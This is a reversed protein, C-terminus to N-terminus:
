KWARVFKSEFPMFQLAATKRLRNGLADVEEMKWGKAGEALELRTEKGAVERLHLTIGQNAPRASVLLVSSPDFPWFSRSSTGASAANVKPLVRSVFPVRAGWGFRTAFMNSTDWGSTLMYSWSMEGEQSSRFNTTWYNNLVWSFMQQTAPKADPTFRGTNIGGFQMLPIEDSVLVIQATASRLAAFNQVTNWDTATGPLQNGGPRVLGGQAEFLLSGQNLALPFAVYVAEPDNTATKRGKFIMDVRKMTKFLRIECTVGEEGAFGDSTGSLAISRWIPGDVGSKWHVNRLSSRTHEGLRNQELAHRDSLKEYIFQGLQWSREHDLLERGLELDVLSNIAGNKRDLTLRYYANQITDLPAFLPEATRTTNTTKIRYTKYGLPPVDDVWLVWYNGETRSQLLQAPVEKNHDDVIRFTVDKSLVQNDVYLQHLGSRSWNLTNFVVISPESSPHLFPQLQGMAAERLLRSQMVAQWAYSSKESWQIQSNEALPDSISEAAGFTHENYFHLNDAVSQMQQFLSRPLQAGFLQAMSLLGQNVILDAQTQRGAATERMACGYGDTWWDPWASRYVPLNRGHEREVWQLFEHVTASRLRPWEYKENWRRINDSSFTSPPSNDTLYGSYQISISNYPYGDSELQQLYVPLEREVFDFKDLHINYFNGTMYHDARYALVRKGSPSEWWFPTPVNFMKLSRTVNIGSTIYKVGLDHFYDVLCWAFGNVDDQMATLVPLGLDRFSKIQEISHVLANEDAVEAWNLLMGTVEIRGELVRKKLRAVQSAPRSKLYERVAWATECTWRFQAEEPYMDTQDCYDLAYDIYRLHEALIETQPRTYGIDTHAHQVLYLTWPRVPAIKASITKRTRGMELNVQLTKATTVPPLKVSHRTIGFPTTVKEVPMGPVAIVATTPEGLNVIELDLPQVSKGRERLMVPRSSATIGDALPTTFTMVWASSGAAEGTVRLEVPKGPQVVGPPLTLRMIGFRDLNRDVMMTKFSLREGNRGAEEWSERSSSVFTVVDIGNMSLSFRKEGLNCGLGALWVFTVPRTQEFTPVAETEWTISNKGDTARSILATRANSLPSPYTMTPGSITRAYGITYEETEPTLIAGSARLALAVLVTFTQIVRCHRRTAKM